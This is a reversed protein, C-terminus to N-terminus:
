HTFTEELVPEGPYERVFLWLVTITTIKSSAVAVVGM